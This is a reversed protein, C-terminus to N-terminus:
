MPMSPDCTVFDDCLGAIRERSVARDPSKMATGGGM